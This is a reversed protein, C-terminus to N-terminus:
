IKKQKELQNPVVIQKSQNTGLYYEPLKGTILKIAIPVKAEMEIEKGYFPIMVEETVKLNIFVRVMSNNIGYDEVDASVYSIVDGVLNIKIPIKPGLNALLPNNSIVGTNLSYIIGKKLDEKNYKKTIDKDIKNINGNEINQMEEQISKTAKTLYENIKPTNFDITKIEDNKDNTIKFIEDPKIRDTVTKSIANNIILNSFKKTEIEAYKFFIPNIKKSIYNILLLSSTLIILILIILTRLFHKRKTKIKKM